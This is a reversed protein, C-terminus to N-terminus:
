RWRRTLATGTSHPSHSVRMLASTDLVVPRRPRTALEKQKGLEDFVEGLWQIWSTFERQLMVNIRRTGVKPANNIRHCSTDLGYQLEETPAFLGELHPRDQDECWTLFSGERGFM